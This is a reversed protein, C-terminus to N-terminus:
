SPLLAQKLASKQNKYFNNTKQTMQRQTQQVFQNKPVITNQIDLPKKITNNLQMQQNNMRKPNVLSAISLM